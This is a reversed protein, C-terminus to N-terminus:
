ARESKSGGEIHGGFEARLASLLKDSFTSERRSRYRAFLASAITAASVEEEVAAELTWRAEGSDAVHGRFSELAQDKALASASLDLLWSRIVSGRRWVEAIDACDLEFREDEPRAATGANRLIDFGEAYAQMLGYEIGNHIMKVFHGSGAPGCHMYGQAPRRDRGDRGPTEPLDGIGPALAAFIPDLRTVEAEPGGIMMCFGEREGWIGGSVGVDLYAIGKPELFARRAVDDKYYSNGGDIICDGPSLIDALARITSETAEGHPLMVWVARPPTLQTVDKLDALPRAGEGALADIASQNRDFVFPTHGSAMLRRSLGAGMRGLGIMAIDM